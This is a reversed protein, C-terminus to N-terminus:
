NRAQHVRRLLISSYNKTLRIPRLAYYLLHLSSPLTLSEWDSLTPVFVARLMSVLADRKRDMIKLNYLNTQTSEVTNEQDFLENCIDEAFRQMEGDGDLNQLVYEPPSWKYLNEVLRLGLALIRKARANVAREVAASWNENKFTRVLEALSAIREIRRWLHKAGHMALYLLLDIDDFTHITTGAYEVTKLRSLVEAHSMGFVFSRPTLAWHLDVVTFWDDRAFQIECHFRLHSQLQASTLKPYMEYGLSELLERALAFDEPQILCDIDGAQRLTAEGFVQEALVPGKFMACKVGRHNFVQNIKLAKSTLHLVSQINTVSERKLTSRVYVPLCNAFTNNAHKNLLPLLGHKSASSLLYDWDINRQLADRLKEHDQPELFRRAISILVEHEPRLLKM